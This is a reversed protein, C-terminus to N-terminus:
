GKCFEHELDFVFPEWAVPLILQDLLEDCRLAIMFEIFPRDRYTLGVIFQLSGIGQLVDGVHAEMCMKDGVQVGSDTKCVASGLFLQIGNFVDLRPDMADNYKVDLEGSM